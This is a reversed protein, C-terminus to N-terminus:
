SGLRNRGPFCFVAFLLGILTTISPEPIFAFTNLEVTGAPNGGRFGILIEDISGFDVGGSGSTSFPALERLDLILESTGGQLTINFFSGHEVDSALALHIMRGLPQATFGLLLIPDALSGAGGSINLNLDGIRDGDTFARGGYSAYASGTVATKGFSMVGGGTGISAAGSTEGSPLIQGDVVVVTVFGNAIM